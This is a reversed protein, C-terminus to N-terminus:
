DPHSLLISLSFCFDSNSVLYIIILFYVECNIFYDCVITVFTLVNVSVSRVLLLAGAYYLLYLYVNQFIYLLSKFYTYLDLPQISCVIRLVEPILYEM